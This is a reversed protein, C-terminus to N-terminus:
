WPLLPAAEPFLPVNRPSGALMRVRIPLGDTGVGCIDAADAIGKLGPEVPLQDIHLNFVFAVALIICATLYDQVIVTLLNIESDGWGVFASAAGKRASERQVFVVGRFAVDGDVSEGRIFAEM